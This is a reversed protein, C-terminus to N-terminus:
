VHASVCSRRRPLCLCRRGTRLGEQLALRVVSTRWGDSGPAGPSDEAGGVRSCWPCKTVPCFVCGPSSFLRPNCVASSPDWAVLVGSAQLGCPGVTMLAVGLPLKGVVLPAILPPLSLLRAVVRPPLVVLLTSGYSYCAPSECRCASDYVLGPLTNLRPSAAGIRNSPPHIVCGGWGIQQPSAPCAYAASTTTRRWGLRFSAGREVLLGPRGDTCPGAARPVHLSVPFGAAPPVTYSRLRCM